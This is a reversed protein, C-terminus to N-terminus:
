SKRQAIAWMFSQVDIMDRPSLELLEAKLYHTFALVSEYTHWNVNPRYHIEFGSIDAANPTVTPKIFMYEEPYVIFLFYTAITWKAPGIRRLCDVYREFRAKLDDDGYLLNFLATAFTQQNAPLELGDKLAIKENPVILNTASSVKLARHCVEMYDNASLLRALEGNSLLDQSLLHARVKSDREKKTFRADYFGQPFRELFKEISDPLSQYQIRGSKAPVHLNDLVPHAADDKPIRDLTVHQLSLIKEGADVFFVRVKEGNSGELVEGFGWEAKIPHRVRDGKNFSM